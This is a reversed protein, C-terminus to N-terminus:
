LKIQVYRIKGCDYIRVWGNNKMNERESLESNYNELKNKM